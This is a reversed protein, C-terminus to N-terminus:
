EGAKLHRVSRDLWTLEAEIHVLTHELVLRAPSALGHVQVLSATVERQEAVAQRRHELLQICEQPELRHMFLYAVDGGPPEAQALQERLLRVFRKRGSATIRYVTREPRKGEREVEREVLGQHFFKELLHYATPRKLDSVFSLRHELFEHLRYGHMSEQDLLGLLLLDHAKALKKVPRCRRGRICITLM